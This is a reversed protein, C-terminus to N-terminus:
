AVTEGAAGPGGRPARGLYGRMEALLRREFLATALATVVAYVAFELVAIAATRHGSEVPHLALVALAAPVTPLVARVMHRAISFGPFLKVLYYGRTSLMAATM